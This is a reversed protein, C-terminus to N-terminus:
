LGPTPWDLTSVGHLGPDTTTRRVTNVFCRKRRRGMKEADVQGNFHRGITGDKAVPAEEAFRNEQYVRAIFTDPSEKVEIFSDLSANARILSSDLHVAEGKVLGVELCLDIVRQFLSVFVTEPFRRRAKSLVSHNPTTEDLDYGLYLRFALNEAIAAALKRESPIEYLCGLLMMKFLVVPDISSQGTDGYYPRTEEYLFSLSIAAVFRRLIHDACVLQDLNLSYFLKPAFKKQGQM